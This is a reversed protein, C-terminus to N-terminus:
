EIEDIQKIIKDLREFAENLRPLGVMGIKSYTEIEKLIGDKKKELRELKGTKEILVVRLEPDNAAANVATFFGAAGGGIVVFTQQKKKM